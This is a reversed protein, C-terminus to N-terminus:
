RMGKGLKFQIQVQQITRVRFGGVLGPQWVVGRVLRMAEDTCGGGVDGLARMNSLNGSTEVVFELKVVGEINRNYADDPYRLQGALYRPLGVLGGPVDPRPLSDLQDVAYLAYGPQVPLTMRASNAPKREKVWRAYRKPNFNVKLFQETEKPIGGYTAPDWRVMAALRLAEADCEPNLPQWVRLDKTSGDTKIIFLLDVAGEVGNELASPPYVLEREWFGMLEAQGGYPQPESFDQALAPTHLLTPLLLPYLAKM